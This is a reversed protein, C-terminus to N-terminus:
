SKLRRHDTKDSRTPFGLYMNRGDTSRCTMAPPVNSYTGTRINLPDGGM